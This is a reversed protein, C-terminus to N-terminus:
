IYKLTLKQPEAGGDKSPVEVELTKTGAYQADIHDLAKDIFDRSKLDLLQQYPYNQLAILLLLDILSAVDEVDTPKKFIRRYIQVLVRIDFGDTHGLYACSTIFQMIIPKVSVKDTMRSFTEYHDKLLQPHLINKQSLIKVSQSQEKVIFSSSNELIMGIFLDNKLFYPWSEVFDLFFANGQNKLEAVQEMQNYRRNLNKLFPGNFQHVDYSQLIKLCTLIQQHSLNDVEDALLGSLPSM